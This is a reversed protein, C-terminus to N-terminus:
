RSARSWRTRRLWERLAWVKRSRISTPYHEDETTMEGNEVARITEALIALVVEEAQACCTAGTDLLTQVALRGYVLRTQASLGVVPLPQARLLM